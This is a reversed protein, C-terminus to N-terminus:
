AKEGTLMVEFRRECVPAILYPQMENEFAHYDKSAFFADADEEQDWITLFTYEAPHEPCELVYGSRGGHRNVLDIFAQSRLTEGVTDANPLYLRITSLHFWM